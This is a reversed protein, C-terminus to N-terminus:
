ALGRRPIPAEGTYFARGKWDGTGVTDLGNLEAHERVLDLNICMRRVSGASQKMLLDKLPEEIAIDPCRMKQLLALDQATGPEAPTWRLMRGHVREWRRLKQPLLEEGILIVPSFSSEYIDRVIEVMKKQVLVDAEDILLAMGTVALQEAIQDVMGAVTNAAPVGLDALIAECLKKRTWVSKMQVLCATEANAAYIAATSKGYGSPGYFTGMGPLGHGRNQVQKLLTLFAQVNRIPAFSNYLTMPETM